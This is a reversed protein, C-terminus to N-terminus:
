TLEDSESFARLKAFFDGLVFRSDISQYVRIPRYERSYDYGCDYTFGPAPRTNWGGCNPNLMLGVAPSDGLSRYEWSRERTAHAANFEVLQRVLYDGIKGCPRVREYLEAYSVGMTVYAPRPVQWVALPSSFVVNAAAVDNSLNFEPKAGDHGDYAPGGIWILTVDREAIAPELLLAAAMDTLPGLFALFLPGADERMAEEIILRTGASDVPTRADPLMHPAGNEVRVKGDLSLLRTLLDIEKRSEAMSERTRRNGFHAAILGRVDLSPSLLAHVIAFQDDAENKADTDIIVRLRREYDLGWFTVLDGEGPVLGLGRTPETEAPGVARVAPQRWAAAVSEALEARAARSRLVPIAVVALVALEDFPGPIFLCVALVPLMWRPVHSKAFRWVARAVRALRVVVVGASRVLAGPALRSLAPGAVDAPGM